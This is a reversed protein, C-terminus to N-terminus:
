KLQESNHHLELLETLKNMQGRKRPIALPSLLADQAGNDMLLLIQDFM